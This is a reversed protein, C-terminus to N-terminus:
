SYPFPVTLLIGGDAAPAKRTGLAGVYATGGLLVLVKSLGFQHTM